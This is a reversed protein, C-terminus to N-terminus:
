SEPMDRMLIIRETVRKRLSIMKKKEEPIPDNKLGMKKLRKEARSEEGQRLTGLDRRLEPKKLAEFIAKEVDKPYFTKRRAFSGRKPILLSM